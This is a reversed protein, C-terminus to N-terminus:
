QGNNSTERRLPLINVTFTTSWDSWNGAADRARVHWFYAGRLIGPPRRFATRQIVSLLPSSFGPDNDIEFQYAVAGNVVNWRFTPVGRVSTNNLPSRLIPIAPPLPDITFSSTASWASYQNAGNYARVRWYCKGNGLPTGPTFTPEAVFHAVVDETFLSNPAIQIEYIDANPVESWTFTPMSNNTTYNNRSPFLLVPASLNIAPTPATYEYAGMDCRAGQPRTVERQDTSPCNIDAGADIAASGARLAMTQTLGGNDQLPGLLPDADLNGTGPYGGKVISNTVSAQATNSFDSIEGGTNNYLISSDITPNAAYDNYIGGGKPATNGSLTVFTLWVHSGGYNYMGGAAETASNASFTANVLIPRSDTWNFMGGGGAATNGSFTVNTMVIIGTALNEMGGGSREASNENFSVDMLRPSSFNDNRMGGGEKASNDRFTVNTLVPSSAQPSYLSQGVNYMGGGFIAYNGSFIVNTLSPSGQDNYIGGGRNWPSPGTEDNANGGTVTFGDLKAYNNTGSGTLVHYSNDRNDGVTGIDGSLITLNVAPDRETRLAESGAFGGYVAVGSKLAFSVTRDDSATPKYTGAAVWIEDGSSAVTLASQLDTFADAWSSGNNNGNADLKVYYAVPQYEYEYAGIECAAGQPRTVGRQDTPLCTATGADLAPSGPLIGMTQTSGGNDALPGLLPDGSIFYGTSCVVGDEILNNFGTVTGGFAYSVCDGGDTNNAFINNSLSLSGLSYLNGGEQAGNGSFTNNALILPNNPGPGNADGRNFVGGGQGNTGTAQNSVFTSNVITRSNSPNVFIGGDVYVAGGSYASNGSFTSSSIDLIASSYIGGGNGTSADNTFTSNSVTLDGGNYIAGGNSSSRADQLSLSQLTVVGNPSINFIRTSLGGSIKAALNLGSGDILLNKDISIESTLSIIQGALSADFIVTDGAVAVAIAERLSCDPDCVGDNTDTTKTVVLTTPEALTRHQSAERRNGAAEVPMAPLMGGLLVFTLIGRAMWSKQYNFFM